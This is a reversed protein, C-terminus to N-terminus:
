NVELVGDIANIIGIKEGDLILHGGSDDVTCVTQVDAGLERILNERTDRILDNIKIKVNKTNAIGVCLSNIESGKGFVKGIEFLKIQTLGLLDGNILNKELSQKMASSLDTRLFNKDSAVPYLVELDGKADFSSTYIESFGYSVLITKIKNVYYFNNNISTQEGIKPPLIAPIKEYGYLRGVEEVVDERINLDSRFDPIALTWADGHKEVSILLKLLNKEIDEPTIAMGLKGSIYEPTISIKKETVPVPYWDISEGAVINKDMEFLYATFDSIGKGILTPSCKNEFRKSADTKINLRESAKRIYSADFNASELILNKTTPTVEAKKGGKIGAIALPAEEDAIVLISEDLSVERNDLMMIKEGKRAMRVVIGGRVKDADFVHLPQGRDFM